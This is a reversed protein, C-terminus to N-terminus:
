AESHLGNREDSGLALSRELVMRGRGKIGRLKELFANGFRDLSTM